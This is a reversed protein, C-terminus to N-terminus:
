HHTAIKGLEKDLVLMNWRDGEAAETKDLITRFSDEEEVQEDIFWNLMSQTAYDEVDKSLSYLDHIRQTVDKEMDLAAYIAASPSQFDSKPQAIAELSVRDDRRQIYDYIRMGHETEESSQARFWKAFGGLGQSDFYAAIALYNHSASLEVNVQANLAKALKTDLKM